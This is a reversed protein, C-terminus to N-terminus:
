SMSVSHRIYADCKTQRRVLAPINNIPDEPIEVFNLRSEYLQM